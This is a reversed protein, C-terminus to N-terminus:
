PVQALDKSVTVCYRIYWWQTALGILAIVCVVAIRRRPNREDKDPAMLPWFVPLALLYYRVNSWNWDTVALIFAVYMATWAALLPEKQGAVLFVLLCLAWVAALLAAGAIGGPVDSNRHVFRLVPIVTVESYWSKQTLTYADWRGTTWGAIVLWIPALLFAEVALSALGIADRKLLSGRRWLYFAYIAMAPAVPAAIGRSLALLVLISGAIVYRRELVLWLFTLLLLLALGEAYAMLFVPACIFTCVSAVALVGGLHGFRRDVIRYLVLMAMAGCMLSVLSAAVPFQLRSIAAVGRVLYPYLPFFAWPNMTVAGNGDVPLQFPYGNAAIEWYWQGDWNTVSAWYGSPAAGASTQFYRGGAKVLEQAPIASRGAVMFMAVNLARTLAYIALPWAWWRHRPPATSRGMAPSRAQDPELIDTSGSGEVHHAGM